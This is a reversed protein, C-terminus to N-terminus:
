RMEKDLAKIDRERCKGRKLCSQVIRKERDSPAMQFVGPCPANTMVYGAPTKELFAIIEQNPRPIAGCWVHLCSTNVTVPISQNEGFGTLGLLGGALEASVSRPEGQKYKPVPQSYSVKGIAIVFSEEAEAYHNFSRALNPKMCSLATAHQGLVSMAAALVLVKASRLNSNVFLANM